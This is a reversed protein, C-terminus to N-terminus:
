PLADILAACSDAARESGAEPPQAEGESVSWVGALAALSGPVAEGRAEPLRPAPLLHIAGDGCDHPALAYAPGIRTHDAVSPIGHWTPAHVLVGDVLWAVYVQVPMESEHGRERLLLVPGLDTTWGELECRALTEGCAPPATGAGLDLVEAELGQLNLRAGEGEGGAELEVSVPCGEGEFSLVAAEPSASCRRGSELGQSPGRSAGEAGEGGSTQAVCALACAFVGLALRLHRPSPATLDM